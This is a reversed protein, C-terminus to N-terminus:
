VDQDTDCARDVEGTVETRMRWGGLEEPDVDESIAVSTVRASSVAMVAGKRMLVYDSMAAKWTPSGYSPGLIATVWPTQRRRDYRQHSRTRAIGQAGMVDPIRAGGAEALVIMPLGNEAAAKRTHQFKQSANPSSSAGLTTFDYAALAVPRGDIHGYGAVLGDCPSRDRDEGRESVTFLGIERFSDADLLYDIRQRANLVGAAAFEALKRKSGMALAKERRTKHEAIRDAFAM